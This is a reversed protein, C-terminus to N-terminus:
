CLFTTPSVGRNDSFLKLTRTMGTDQRNITPNHKKIIVAEAIQLRNVDNNRKIIETNETLQRRNLSSEHIKEMHQKIAGNALYMTLIRSLSTTTVGIYNVNHRPFCEEHPCIFKYVVNTNKLDITSTSILVYQGFKSFYIYIYIFYSPVNFLQM